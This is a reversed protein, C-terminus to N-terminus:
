FKEVLLPKLIIMEPLSVTFIMLSEMGAVTMYSKM